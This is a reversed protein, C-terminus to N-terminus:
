MYDQSNKEMIDVILKHINWRYNVRLKEGNVKVAKNMILDIENFSSKNIKNYMDLFDHIDQYYTREENNEEDRFNILFGANVHNFRGYEKLGLIQHKKIMKKQSNNSNISEFSIYKQKTSKLELCWFERNYSDFLFFDCPNNWSFVSTDTHNQAQPPDKLRCLLCFDPISDKFNKEFRKGVNM